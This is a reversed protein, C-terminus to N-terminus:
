WYGKRTYGIDTYEDDDGAYDNDEIGQKERVEFSAGAPCIGDTRNLDYDGARIYSTNGITFEDCLRILQLADHLYEPAGLVNLLYHKKADATLIDEQSDSWEYQETKDPYQIYELTARIRCRMFFSDFNFGFASANCRGSLVLTSSHRVQLNFPNTVNSYEATSKLVVSRIYIDVNPNRPEFGVWLEVAGSLATLDIERTQTGATTFLVSAGPEGNAFFFAFVGEGASIGALIFSLNYKAGGPVVLKQVLTNDAVITGPAPYVAGTPLVSIHNWELASGYLSGWGTFGSAFEPNVIQNETSLFYDYFALYCIGAYAVESWDIFCTSINTHPVEVTNTIGYDILVEKNVDLVRMGVRSIESVTIDSIAVDLGAGTTSIVLRPPGIAITTLHAVIKGSVISYTGASGDTDPLAVWQDNMRVRYGGGDPVSQFMVNLEIRYRRYPKLEVPIELTAPGTFLFRTLSGYFQVDGSLIWDAFAFPKIQRPTSLVQIRQEDEYTTLQMLAYEDCDECNFKAQIPQKRIVQIM